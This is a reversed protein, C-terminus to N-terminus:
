ARALRRVARPRSPALRSLAGLVKRMHIAM